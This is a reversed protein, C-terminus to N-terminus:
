SNGKEQDDPKDQPKANKEEGDKAKKFENIAKGLGKALEPLKAGGFILVVIALIVLWESGMPLGWAIMSANM